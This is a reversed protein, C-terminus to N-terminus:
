MESWLTYVKTLIRLKQLTAQFSEAEEINENDSGDNQDDSDVDTNLAKLAHLFAQVALNIVHDICFIHREKAPWSIGKESLKQELFQTMKINNSAADTTVCFLKHTIRMDDLIALLITALSPGAHQGELRKFDILCEQLRYQRDIFYGTIALIM